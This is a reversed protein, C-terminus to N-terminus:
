GEIDPPKCISALKKFKPGLDGLTNLFADDDPNSITELESLKDSDGEDAYIQPQHDWLLDETEKISSLRQLSIDFDM